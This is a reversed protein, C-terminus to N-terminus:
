HCPFGTAHRTDHAADHLANAQVHGAMIVIGLGLMLAFVASGLVGSASSATKTAYTTM